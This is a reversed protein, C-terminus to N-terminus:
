PMNDYKIDNYWEYKYKDRSIWIMGHSWKAKIIYWYM